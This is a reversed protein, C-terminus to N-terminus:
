RFISAAVANAKIGITADEIVVKGYTTLNSSSNYTNGYNYALGFAFDSNSPDWGFAIWGIGLSNASRIFDGPFAMTASPYRGYGPGFEGIVLPLGANKVSQLLSTISAPTVYQGVHDNADSVYAGYGTSDINVDNLDTLGFTRAGVNLNKVKYINRVADSSNVQTMGVVDTLIIQEGNSLNDLDVYTVVAPNAKTINSVNNIFGFQPTNLVGYAHPSFIINKQPDSNFVAAGHNIIANWDQGFFPLDIMLTHLFGATRMRRIATIYSDRWTIEDTNPPLTTDGWENAINIIIWKETGRWASIQSIWDSVVQALVAPDANGSTVTGEAPPTNVTYYANAVTIISNNYNENTFQTVFQAATYGNAWYLVWRETNTKTNLIATADPQNYHARNLGKILFEVGNSDYLKM